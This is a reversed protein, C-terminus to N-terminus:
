LFVKLLLFSKDALTKLTDFFEKNGGHWIPTNMNIHFAEDYMM